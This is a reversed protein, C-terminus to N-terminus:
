IDFGNETWRDDFYQGNNPDRPCRFKEDSDKTYIEGDNLLENFQYAQNQRSNEKSSTAYQNMCPM